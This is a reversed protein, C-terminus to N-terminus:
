WRTSLNPCVSTFSRINGRDFSVLEYPHNDIVQRVIQSECMLMESSSEIKHRQRPDERDQMGRDNRSINVLPVCNAVLDVVRNNVSQVCLGKDSEAMAMRSYQLIGRDVKWTVLKTVLYFISEAVICDWVVIKITRSTRNKKTMEHTKKPFIRTKFNTRLSGGRAM